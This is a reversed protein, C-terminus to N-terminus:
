RMSIIKEIMEDVNKVVIGKSYARVKDAQAGIDFCIIPLDMIIYESVLYSFTEPCISPFIGVSINSKKILKILEEHKYKGYFKTNKRSIGMQRKTAGIFTVPIDSPIRRLLEQIILKGKPITFVAGLIGIHLPLKEIGEIKEYHCYSMSHPKVTLKNKDLNPYSRLIIKKSNESFCIIEDTISLLKYWQSRWDEINGSYRNVFFDFQCKHVSCNLGCDWNNAILNVIPCVCHFDHIHYVFKCKQYKSKYSRLMEMMKFPNYIQILSNIVVSKFENQFVSCVQEAPIYIKLSNNKSELKFCINKGYSIIKLYFINETHEDSFNKEYLATGGGLNHTIFLISKQTDSFFDTIANKKNRNCLYKYQLSLKSYKVSRYVKKLISLLMKIM